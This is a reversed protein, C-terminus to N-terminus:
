VVEIKIKRINEFDQIRIPMTLTLVGKKTSDTNNVQM